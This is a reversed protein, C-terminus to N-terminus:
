EQHWDASVRASASVIGGADWGRVGRRAQRERRATSARRRHLLARQRRPWLPAALRRKDLGTGKHGARSLKPRVGGSTRIREVCVGAVEREALASRPVGRVANSRGARGVSE